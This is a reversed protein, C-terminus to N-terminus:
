CCNLIRYYVPLTSNNDRLSVVVIVISVLVVVVCAIVVIIISNYSFRKYKVSANKCRYVICLLSGTSNIESIESSRKISVNIRNLVIIIM